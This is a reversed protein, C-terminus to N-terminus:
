GYAPPSHPTFPLHSRHDKLRTYNNLLTGTERDFTSISTRPLMKGLRITQVDHRIFISRPRRGRACRVMCLSALHLHLTFRPSRFGPFMKLSIQMRCLRASASVVMAEISRVNQSHM